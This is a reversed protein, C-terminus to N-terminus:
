FFEVGDVVELAEIVKYFPMDRIVLAAFHPIKNSHETLYKKIGAIPILNDEIEMNKVIEQIIQPEVTEMDAILQAICSAVTPAKRLNDSM